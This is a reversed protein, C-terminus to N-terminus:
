RKRTVQPISHCQAARKYWLSQHESIAVPCKLGFEGTEAEDDSLDPLFPAGERQSQSFLGACLADLESKTPVLHGRTDSPRLSPVAAQPCVSTPKFNVNAETLSSTPHITRDSANDQIDGTVLMPRHQDSNSAETSAVPAVDQPRKVSTNVMKFGEEDANLVPGVPESARGFNAALVSYLGTKSGTSGDQVVNKHEHLYASTRARKNPDQQTTSSQLKQAEPVSPRHQMEPAPTPPLGMWNAQQLIIRKEHREATIADFNPLQDEEFGFASSDLGPPATMLPIRQPKAVPVQSARAKGSLSDIPWTRADTSIHTLTEIRKFPVNRPIAQQMNLSIVERWGSWHVSVSVPHPPENEREQWRWPQNPYRKKVDEPVMVPKVSEAQTAKTPEPTRQTLRDPTAQLFPLKTQRLTGPLYPHSFHGAGGKQDAPYRSVPM